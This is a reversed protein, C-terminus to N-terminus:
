RSSRGRGDAQRVLQQARSKSVDLARAIDTLSYGDEVALRVAELLDAKAVVTKAVLDNVRRHAKRLGVDTRTSM